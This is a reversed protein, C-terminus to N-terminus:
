RMFIGKCNRHLEKANIIIVLEECASVLAVVCLIIGTLMSGCLCYLVPALFILLGTLQNTWTHLATFAHYKYFGIGYSVLRLLAIVLACLWLWLPIPINRAIFVTMCGAFALDAISDLKAGFASEQHLKRALFGDMIDTSGSSLYLIWFLVSFPPVVLTAISLPIRLFTIINPLQKM